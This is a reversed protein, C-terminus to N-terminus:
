MIPIKVTSNKSNDTCKLCWDKELIPSVFIKERERAQKRMRKLHDKKQMVLTQSKSSTWNIKSQVKKIEPLRLQKTSSGLTKKKNKHKTKNRTKEERFTVHKVNLDTM